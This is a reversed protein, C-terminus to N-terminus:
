EDRTRGAPPSCCVSGAAGCASIITRGTTPLCEGVNVCSNPAACTPNVIPTATPIPTPTGTGTNPRAIYNAPEFEQCQGNPCIACQALFKGGTAPITFPLSVSSAATDPRLTTPTGVQRNQADFAVVRFAYQTVGTVRGCSFKISDGAKITSYDRIINGGTNQMDLSVCMPGGGGGQGCENNIFKPQFTAKIYDNLTKTEGSKSELVAAVDFTYTAPLSARSNTIFQGLTAKSVNDKGLIPTSANIAFSTPAADFYKINYGYSGANTFYPEGLAAIIKAENADHPLRIFLRAYSFDQGKLDINSFTYNFSPIGPTTNACQGVLTATPKQAPPQPKDTATLIWEVQGHLANGGLSDKIVEGESWRQVGDIGNIEGWNEQSNLRGIEDSTALTFSGHEAERHQFTAQWKAGEFGRINNNRYQLHSYPALASLTNSFSKDNHFAFYSANDASYISSNADFDKPLYPAMYNEVSCTAFTACHYGPTIDKNGGAIREFDNKDPYGCDNRPRDSHSDLTHIKAGKLDIKEISGDPLKLFFRHDVWGNASVPVVSFSLMVTLSFFIALSKFIQKM